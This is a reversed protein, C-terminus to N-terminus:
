ELLKEFFCFLVFCFCFLVFCFWYPLAVDSLHSHFPVTHLSPKGHSRTGVGSGACVFVVAGASSEPEDSPPMDKPTFNM